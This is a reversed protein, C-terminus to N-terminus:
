GIEGVKTLCARARSLERRDSSKRLWATSSPRTGQFAQAQAIVVVAGRQASDRRAKTDQRLVPAAVQADRDGGELRM